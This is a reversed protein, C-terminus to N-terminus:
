KYIYHGFGTVQTQMSGNWLFVTGGLTLNSSLVLNATFDQGSNPSNM